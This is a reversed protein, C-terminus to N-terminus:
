GSEKQKGDGRAHIRTMGSTLNECAGEADRIGRRSRGAHWSEQKCRSAAEKGERQVRKQM